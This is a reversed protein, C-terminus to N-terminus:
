EAEDGSQVGDRKSSIWTAVNVGVITWLILTTGLVAALWGLPGRVTAGAIVLSAGCIMTVAFQIVDILTM